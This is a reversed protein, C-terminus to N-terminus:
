DTVESRRCATTVVAMGGAATRSLESATRTAGSRTTSREPSVRGARATISPRPGPWRRRQHQGPLLEDSARQPQGLRVAQGLGHDHVGGHGLDVAVAEDIEQREIRV